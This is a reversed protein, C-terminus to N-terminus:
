HLKYSYLDAFPISFPKYYFHLIGFALPFYNYGLLEPYRKM